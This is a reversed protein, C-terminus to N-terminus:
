PFRSNWLPFVSYSYRALHVHVEPFQLECGMTRTADSPACRSNRSPRLMVHHIAPIWDLTRGTTNFPCKLCDLSERPTIQTAHQCCSTTKLGKLNDIDGGLWPVGM